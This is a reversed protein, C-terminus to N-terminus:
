QRRQRSLGTRDSDSFTPFSSSRTHTHFHAVRGEPTGPTIVYLYDESTVIEPVAYKGDPTEIIWFAHEYGTNQTREWAEAIANQVVESAMVDRIKACIEEASLGKSPLPEEPEWFYKGGMFSVKSNGVALLTARCATNNSASLAENTNREETTYTSKEHLSTKQPERAEKVAFDKLQRRLGAVFGDEWGMRQKLAELQRTEGTRM